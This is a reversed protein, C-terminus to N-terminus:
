RPMGNEDYGLIEDATRADRDPMAGIRHAAGLLRDVLDNSARAAAVPKAVGLLQDVSVNLKEAMLVLLDYPAEREGREYSRYRNHDIGIADAFEARTAYGKLERASQLRRAFLNTTSRRAAVPPPRKSTRPMM